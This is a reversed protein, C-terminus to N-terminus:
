WRSGYYGDPSGCVEDRIERAKLLHEYYEARGVLAATNNVVKKFGAKSTPTIDKVTRDIDSHTWYVPFQSRDTERRAMYRRFGGLRSVQGMMEDRHANPDELFKGETEGKM